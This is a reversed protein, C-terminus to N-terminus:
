GLVREGTLDDTHIRGEDLIVVAGSLHRSHKDLYEKVVLNSPKVFNGSIQHSRIVAAPFLMLSIVSSLLLAKRVARGGYALGDVVFFAPVMGVLQLSRTGIAALVTGLLFHLSGAGLLAIERRRLRRTRIVFLTSIAFATVVFALDCWSLAKLIASAPENSLPSLATEVQRALARDSAGVELLAQYTGQLSRVTYKFFRTNKYIIVSAQAVALLLLLSLTPRPRRAAAGLVCLMAVIATSWVGFLAHSEIGVLFFLRFLIKDQVTRRGMLALLPFFLALAFVYPVAQWNLLWYFGAFYLVIGWFVAGTSQPGAPPNGLWLIFLAGGISLALFFFVVHIAGYGTVGLADVLFSHFLISAPWQFYSHLAVHQSMDLPGVTRAYQLLDALAGADSGWSLYLFQPASLFLPFLSSAIWHVYPSASTLVLGGLAPFGAALGLWFLPSVQELVPVEIPSHGIPYTQAWGLIMLSIALLTASAWLHPQRLTTRIRGM